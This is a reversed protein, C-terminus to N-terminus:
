NWDLAGKRLEYLFGVTLIVFFAMMSWFGSMKSCIGCCCSPMRIKCSKMGTMGLAVCFM